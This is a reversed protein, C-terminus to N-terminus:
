RSAVKRSHHAARGPPAAAIQIASPSARAGLQREGTESHLDAWGRALVPRRCGPARRGTSRPSCPCPSPPPPPSHRALLPIHDRSPLLLLAPPSEVVRSRRATSVPPHRTGTADRAQWPPCTDQRTRTGLLSGRGRGRDAVDGHVTRSLVALHWPSGSPRTMYALARSGGGGGRRCEEMGRLRTQM